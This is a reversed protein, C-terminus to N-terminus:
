LTRPKQEQSHVSTASCPRRVERPESTGTRASRSSRAGARAHTRENRWARTLVVTHSSRTLLVSSSRMHVYQFYLRQKTSHLITSHIGLTTSQSPFTRTTRPGSSESDQPHHGKFGNSNPAIVQRIKDAMKSGCCIASGTHKYEHSVAM